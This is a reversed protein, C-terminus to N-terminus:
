PIHLCNKSQQQQGPQMPMQGGEPNFNPISNAMENDWNEIQFTNGGPAANGGTALRGVPVNPINDGSPGPQQLAGTPMVNLSFLSPIEKTILPPIPKNHKKEKM